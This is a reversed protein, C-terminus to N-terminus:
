TAFRPGAGTGRRELLRLLHDIVTTGCGDRNDAHICSRAPCGSATTDPAPPGREASGSVRAAHTGSSCPVRFRRLVTWCSQWGAQRGPGRIPRSCNLWRNWVPITSERQMPAPRVPGVFRSLRSAADQTAPSFRPDLLREGPGALWPSASGELAEISAGWSPRRPSGMRCQQRSRSACTTRSSRLCRGCTNGSPRGQRTRGINLTGDLPPTAPRFM